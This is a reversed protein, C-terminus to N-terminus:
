AARQMWAVCRALLEHMQAAPAHYRRGHGPLFFQVGLSRFSAVPHISAQFRSGFVSIGAVIVVM